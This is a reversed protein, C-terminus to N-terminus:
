NKGPKRNHGHRAGERIEFEKQYCAELLPTWWRVISARAEIEVWDAFWDPISGHGNARRALAALDIYLGNCLEPFRTTIRSAVDLTPPSAGTEAKNITTRDFGLDRALADQSTYGAAERASRLKAGLWAGLDSRPDRDSTM